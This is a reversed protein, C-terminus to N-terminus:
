ETSTEKLFIMWARDVTRTRLEWANDIAADRIKMAENVSSECETRSQELARQYVEEAEKEAQRAQAVVKAFVEEARREAEERARLAVNIANECDRDAKQATEKYGRELQLENVKYAKAVERQAELYASYAKQAKGLVDSLPGIYSDQTLASRIFEGEMGTSQRGTEDRANSSEELAEVFVQVEDDIVGLASKAQKKVKGNNSKTSM